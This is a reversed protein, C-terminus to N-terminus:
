KAKHAPSLGDNNESAAWKLIDLSWYKILKVLDSVCSARTNRSVGGWPRSPTHGCPSPLYVMQFFRPRHMTVCIHRLLVFAPAVGKMGDPQLLQVLLTILHIILLLLVSLNLTEPRCHSAPCFLWGIGAGGIEKSFDNVMGDSEKMTEIETM